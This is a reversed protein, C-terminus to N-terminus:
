EAKYPTNRGRLTAPGKVGRSFPVQKPNSPFRFKQNANMNSYYNNTFDTSFPFEEEDVHDTWTKEFEFCGIDPASGFPRTTGTIDVVISDYAIGANYALSSAQIDYNPAITVSSGVATGDVFGLSAYTTFASNSGTAANADNAKNKFSHGPVTVLNYTQDDSAIGDGANSYVINNIVKSCMVAPNTAVGGRDIITNFSATGHIGSDYIISNGQSLNSATILCNSIEAHGSIKIVDNSGPEFFMVCQEFTIPNSADTNALLGSALVPVDHIFCDSVALDKTLAASSVGKFVYGTQGKIELGIITYGDNYSWFANNAGGPGGTGDIVPRGLNSATHRVTISARNWMNGEAYTGEDIIEVIDGDVGAIQIAADITLKALAPTTGNDSDDGAKSVYYTTM